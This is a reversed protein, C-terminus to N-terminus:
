FNIGNLCEDEEMTYKTDYKTDINKHSSVIKISIFETSEMCIYIIINCHM